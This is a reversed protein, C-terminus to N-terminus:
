DFDILILEILNIINLDILILVICILEMFIM